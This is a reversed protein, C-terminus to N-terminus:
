TSPLSCRPPNEIMEAGSKSAASSHPRLSARAVPKGGGVDTPEQLSTAGAGVLAQVTAVVDDVHWYAVPGTVGQAHGNPALDTVPYIVTQIGAAM